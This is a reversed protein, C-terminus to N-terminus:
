NCNKASENKNSFTTQLTKLSDLPPFNTGRILVGKFPGQKKSISCGQFLIFKIVVFVKVYLTTKAMALELPTYNVRV